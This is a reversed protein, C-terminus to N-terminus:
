EVLRPLVGYPKSPATRARDVNLGGRLGYLYESSSLPVGLPPLKAYCLSKKINLLMVYLYESVRLITYGETVVRHFESRENSRMGQCFVKGDISYSQPSQRVTM